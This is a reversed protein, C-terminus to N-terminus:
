QQKAKYINYLDSITECSKFEYVEIQVGYKEKLDTLFYLGTLSSWEDLYRFETDLDIEDTLEGDFLGIFFDLFELENM